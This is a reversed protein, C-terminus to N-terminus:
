ESKKKKIHKERCDAIFRWIKMAYNERRERERESGKKRGTIRKMGSLIELIDRM